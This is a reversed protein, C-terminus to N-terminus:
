VAGGAGSRPASGGAVAPPAGGAPVGSIKEYAAKQEDTLQAAIKREFITRASKKQIETGTAMAKKYNEVDKAIDEKQKDTLQLKEALDPEALGIMGARIIRIKEFKPQQEDTLLNLGLRESEAVFPALKAQKEAPSINKPLSLVTEQVDKMRQNILETIKNKADDTLGLDRQVQPDGLAALKGLFTPDAEAATAAGAAAMSLLLAAIAFAFPLTRMSKGESRSSNGSAFSLRGFVKHYDQLGCIALSHQDVQQRNYGRISLWTEAAPWPPEVRPCHVLSKQLTYMNATRSHSIALKFLSFYGDRM